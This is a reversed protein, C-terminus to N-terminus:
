KKVSLLTFDQKMTEALKQNYIMAAPHYLIAYQLNNREIIKGHMKELDIKENELVHSIATRGMLGIIKPQLINIQKFM